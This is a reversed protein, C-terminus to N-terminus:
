FLFHGAQLETIGPIRVLGDGTDVILSSEEVLLTLSEFDTSFASLDIRDVSPDFNIISIASFPAEFIFTDGGIKGSMAGETLESFVLRRRFIGFYSGDWDDALFAVVVSGDNLTAPSPNRQYSETVVNILVEPGVPSGQADFRQGMVDMGSAVQGYTMWTVFFGGDPMATVLPVHQDGTEFTNIRFEAGIKEGAANFRQGFVGLRGKGANDQGMSHWVVIAGLDNLRAADPFFQDHTFRSNVIFEPGVPEGQYTLVRGAIGYGSGDLGFSNWVVLMRNGGILTVIPRYQTNAMFENIQTSPGEPSGNGDFFRVFVENESSTQGESSYAVVFRNGSLWAMDPETQAGKGFENVVLEGSVPSATEDLLRASIGWDMGDAEWSDWAAVIRGEPNRAFKIKWQSERTTTNLRYERGIAAGDASYRQAYIGWNSGDQDKSWWAIVYGGDDLVQVVPREQNNDTYTNVRTGLVIQADLPDLDDIYPPPLYLGLGEAVQRAIDTRVREVAGIDFRYTDAWVHLGNDTRILQATVEINEGYRRLSGELITAVGLQDGIEQATAKRADLSFSSTRAMIELGDVRDLDVILNDVFGLAFDGEGVPDLDVFPMIAISNPVLAPNKNSNLAQGLLAAIVIAVLSIAGLSGLRRRRAAVAEPFTVPAVLRYGRKAITEIYAPTTDDEALAKRLHSVTFYVSDQTVEVDGWVGEMIADTSVVDGANEALLVLVDM